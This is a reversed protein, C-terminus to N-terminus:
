AGLHALAATAGAQGQAAALRLWRVAVAYDQAVGQGLAFRLGLQFQAGALGQAAALQYWRVAEVYDHAVGWGKSFMNGL